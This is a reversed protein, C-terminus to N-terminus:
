ITARKKKKLCFVAYSIKVHSSESTHEESRRLVYFRRGFRPFSRRLDDQDRRIFRYKRGYSFRSTIYKLGICFKLEITKVTNPLCPFWHKTWLRLVRRHKRRFM